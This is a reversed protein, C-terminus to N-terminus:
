EPQLDLSMAARTHCHERELVVTAHGTDHVQDELGSCWKIHAHPIGERDDFWRAAPRGERPGAQVVASPM